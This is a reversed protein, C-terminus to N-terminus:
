HIFKKLLGATDVGTGRAKEVKAVFPAIEASQKFAVKEKSSMESLVKRIAEPEMQPFALKCAEFLISAGAVGTRDGTWKGQCLRTWLTRVLEMCDAVTDADAYEDGLKQSYGHAMAHRSMGDGLAVWEADPLDAFMATFSDGNRGDFRIGIAVGDQLLVDKKVKATKGFEVKRGDLMEVVIKENAM